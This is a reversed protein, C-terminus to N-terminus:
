CLGRHGSFEHEICNEHGHLSAHGLVCQNMRTLSRLKATSLCCKLRLMMKLGAHVPPSVAPIVGHGFRKKAAQLFLPDLLSNVLSACDDIDLDALVDLDEIMPGTLVAMQATCDPPHNFGRRFLRM